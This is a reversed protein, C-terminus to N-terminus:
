KARPRSATSDACTLYHSKIFLTQVSDRARAAELRIPDNEPFDLMRMRKELNNLYRLMRGFQANLKRAQENTLDHSDM